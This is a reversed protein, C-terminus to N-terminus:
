LQVRVQKTLAQEKDRKDRRSNHGEKHYFGYNIPRYSRSVKYPNNPEDADKKRKMPPRSPPKYVIPAVFALQNTEVWEDQGPLPTIKEKYAAVYADKKYCAHVYDKPRKLNKYIVAIGNKCPIGTFDWVKCAVYTSTIQSHKFTRGCTCTPVMTKIQFTLEGSIKMNPFKMGKCLQPNSMGTKENFEPCRVREDEDESSNIGRTDDDDLAKEANETDRQHERMNPVENNQAGFIDDPYDLGKYGEDLWDPEDVYVDESGVTQGHIAHDDVHVSDTDDDEDNMEWPQDVTIPQDPEVIPEEIAIPEVEPEVYLTIKNTPWEAHLECMYIVDDDSTILKLGQELDGGPILYYIRSNIPRGVEACIDQIKFYSLLDLDVNGMTSVEGGVYELGPNWEFNESHHITFDFRIEAAM